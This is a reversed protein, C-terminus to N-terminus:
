KVAKQKGPFLAKMSTTVKVLMTPLVFIDAAAIDTEYKMARKKTSAEFCSRHWARKEKGFRLWAYWVYVVKDRLNFPDPKRNTAKKM